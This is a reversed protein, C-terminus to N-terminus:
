RVMSVNSDNKQLNRQISGDVSSNKCSFIEIVTDYTKVFLIAMLIKVM